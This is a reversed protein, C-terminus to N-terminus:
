HVVDWIDKITKLFMCTGSIKPMMLNCLWSMIISDLENWVVFWADGKRLGIGLFHSLKKKEKLFACVLQSFKLYKNGNFRYAM